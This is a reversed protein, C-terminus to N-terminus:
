QKEATIDMKLVFYITLIAYPARTPFSTTLFVRFPLPTPGRPPFPGGRIVKTPWMISYGKCVPIAAPRSSLASFSFLSCLKFYPRQNAFALM